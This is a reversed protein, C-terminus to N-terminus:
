GRAVMGGPQILKRVLDDAIPFPKYGNQTMGIYSVKTTIPGVKTEKGSVQRGTKDTVPDSVLTGNLDRLTYEAIADKMELPIGAVRYGDRDQANSRPWQTSQSRGNLKSGPFLLGWRRDAYDTSKVISSKIQDVEYDSVDMGRDNHYDTFYQVSIYANAGVVQGSDDQLNFVM